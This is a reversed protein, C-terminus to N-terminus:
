CEPFSVIHRGMTPEIRNGDVSLVRFEHGSIFLVTPCNYANANILRLLYQRGHHVKLVVGSEQGNLLFVTPTPPHSHLYRSLPTPSRSSLLLMRELTPDDQLGRVTLSGYVGDAQQSVLHAYYLYSGAREPRLQYRFGGFPLISCQTVMPVGDMHASNKQRLGHWHFSLEASGLRNYLTVEITDGLCVEIQPGPSRGNIGLISSRLITGDHSRSEGQVKSENRTSVADLFEGVFFEYRCLKRSLAEDACSRLCEHDDRTESSSIRLWAHFTVFLVFNYFWWM